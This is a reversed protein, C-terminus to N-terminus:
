KFLPAAGDACLAASESLMLLGGLPHAAARRHALLRDLIETYSHSPATLFFGRSGMGAPRAADMQFDPPPPDPELRRVPGGCDIGLRGLGYTIVNSNWVILAKFLLQARSKEDGQILALRRLALFVASLRLARGPPDLRQLVALDVFRPRALARNPVFVGLLALEAPAPQERGRRGTPSASRPADRDGQVVRVYAPSPAWEASAATVEATLPGLPFCGDGVEVVSAVEGSLLNLVSGEAPVQCPHAVM